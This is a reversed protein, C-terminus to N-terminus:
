LLNSKKLIGKIHIYINIYLIKSLLKLCTTRFKEKSIENNRSLFIVTKLQGYLIPLYQILNIYM